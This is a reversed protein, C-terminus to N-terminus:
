EETENLNSLEIKPQRELEEQKKQKLRKNAEKIEELLEKLNDENIKFDVMVEDMTLSNNEEDTVSIIIDVIKKKASFIKYTLTHAYNEKNQQINFEKIGFKGIAIPAFENGITGVLQICESVHFTKGQIKEKLIDEYEEQLQKIEQSTM